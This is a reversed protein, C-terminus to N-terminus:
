YGLAVDILMGLESQRVIVIMMLAPPAPCLFRL